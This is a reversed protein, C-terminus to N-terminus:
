VALPSYLLFINWDEVFGNLRPFSAFITVLESCYRYLTPGCVSRGFFRPDIEPLYLLNKKEVIDPGVIPDV